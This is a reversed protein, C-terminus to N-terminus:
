AWGSTGKGDICLRAVLGGALRKIRDMARKAEPDYSFRAGIHHLFFVAWALDHDRASLPFVARYADLLKVDFLACRGDLVQEMVELIDTARDLTIERYALLYLLDLWPLCADGALEWDIVAHVSRDERNFILNELKYDGHMWVVTCSTGLVCDKVTALLTQLETSAVPYREIAVRAALGTMKEFLPADIHLPHATERNFSLLVAFAAEFLEDMRPVPLDVTVGDIAEMAFVPSGRFMREESIRPLYSVMGLGASKLRTITAFETRRRAVTREDGPLVYLLPIEELPQGAPQFFSKAPNVIFQSFRGEGAGNGLGDLWGPPLPKRSALFAHGPALWPAAPGYIWAKLKEVPRWSNRCSRYGGPPLIEAIV